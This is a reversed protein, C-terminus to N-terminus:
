FSVGLGFSARLSLRGAQSAGFPTAVAALELEPSVASARYGLQAGFVGSVRVATKEDGSGNSSHASRILGLEGAACAALRFGGGWGYCGGLDLMAFSERFRVARDTEVEEEVYPLGFGLVARWEVPGALWAATAALYATTAQLTGVDLGARLAIRVRAPAADSAPEPELAPAVPQVLDPEGGEAAPPPAAAEDGEAAAPASMALALVAVAAAVAEDCSATLLRKTGLEQAAE